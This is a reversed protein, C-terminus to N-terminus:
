LLTDIFSLNNDVSDSNNRLTEKGNRAISKRSDPNEALYIIDKALRSARSIVIGDNDSLKTVIDRCSSFYNGIITPVEYFVAELPNHGGYNCFSGGIVAIDAIAYAQPLIGMRDIILFDSRSKGEESFLTYDAAAFLQKIQSLRNLHRPAIVVRLNPIKKRLKKYLSLLLEEEGPRSSGWVIIFDNKSYNWQQRIKIKDFPHLNTCFKLNKTNHVNKFGIKGFREKALESQAGTFAVSSFLKKLFISLFNYSSFTNDSIRGNVLAVPIKRLKAQLLLNFWLETEVIILLSPSYYKFIANYLPFLDLPLLAQFDAIEANRVTKLGTVTMTTILVKYQPYDTRFKQLLPKVANVEGVSACHFWVLKNNDGKQEKTIFGLRSKLETFSLLLLLFPTILILCVFLILNYLLLFLYTM